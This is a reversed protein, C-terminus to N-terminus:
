YRHFRDGYTDKFNTDERPIKGLANCYHGIVGQSPGHGPENLFTANRLGCTLVYKKMAHEAVIRESPVLTRTVSLAVSLLGKIFLM